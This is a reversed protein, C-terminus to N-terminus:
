FFGKLNIKVHLHNNRLIVKENLQKIQHLLDAEKLTYENLQNELETIRLKLSTILNNHISEQRNM